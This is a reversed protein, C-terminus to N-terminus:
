NQKWLISNLSKTKLINKIKNSKKIMDFMENYKKEKICIKLEQLKDIYNNLAKLVNNSNQMFIPVWMEPSSKALRVTSEFGGSALNFINKEDNEIDMVTLALAFSSIHSIHSVYAVHMDHSSSDMETIVMNLAHYMKKVLEVAKIDSDEANCIIACKKDFLNPIAALPGSNETGSMPHSAVYNKRKPHDKIAEIIKEKASGMDTVVQTTAIDLIQPLLNIIADVPIAIIILESNKVAFELSSIQDVLNRQLAIAAHETNNDVGIIHSAFKKERLDIAISGGILGLGIISIKM